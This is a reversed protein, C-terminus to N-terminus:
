LLVRDPIKQKVAHMVLDEAIPFQPKLENNLQQYNSFVSPLKESVCRQKKDPLQCPHANQISYRANNQMTVIGSLYWLLIM